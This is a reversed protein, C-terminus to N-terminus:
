PPNVYALIEEEAEDVSIGDRLWDWRRPMRGSVGQQALAAPKWL